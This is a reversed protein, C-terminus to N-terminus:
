RAIRKSYKHAGNQVPLYFGTFAHFRVFALLTTGNFGNFVNYLLPNEGKNKLHHYTISEFWRLRLGASKCDAGTPWKPLRGRRAALRM